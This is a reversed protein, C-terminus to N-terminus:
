VFCVKFLYAGYWSLNSPLLGTIQRFLKTDSKQPSLHYVEPELINERLSKMFRGASLILNTAKVLQSNYEPNSEPNFILYPNFNIPLPKRDCLYMDFWFESIYSTHSNKKNRTILEEQLVPGDTKLFETVISSTETFKADTLVPKQANLYKMCTQELKPIPLRPLSPQFHMTPLKSRQIYQYDKNAEWTTKSKLSFLNVLKILTIYKSHLSICYRQLIPYSKNM